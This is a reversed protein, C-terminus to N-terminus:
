NLYNESCIKKIMHYGTRLKWMRSVSDLILKKNFQLEMDHRFFEVNGGLGAFEQWYFGLFLTCFRIVSEIQYNTKWQNKPLTETAKYNHRPATQKTNNTQIKLKSLKMHKTQHFSPHFTRVISKTCIIFYNHNIIKVIKKLSPHHTNVQEM